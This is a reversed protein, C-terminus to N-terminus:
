AHRAQIVRLPGRNSEPWRLLRSPHLTDDYPDVVLGDNGWPIDEIFLSVLLIRKRAGLMCEASIQKGCDIPSENGCMSDRGISINM